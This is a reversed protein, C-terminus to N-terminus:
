RARPMLFTSSEGTGGSGVGVGAWGGRGLLSTEVRGVESSGGGVNLRGLLSTGDMFGM